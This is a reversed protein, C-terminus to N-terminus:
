FCIKASCCCLEAYSKLPQGAQARVLPKLELPQRAVVVGRPLPLETCRNHNAGNREDLHLAAGLPREWKAGFPGTM